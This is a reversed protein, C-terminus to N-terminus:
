IHPAYPGWLGLKQAVKPGLVLLFEPRHHNEWINEVPKVDTKKSGTLKFKKWLHTSYQVGLGLNGPWLDYNRSETMKENKEWMM